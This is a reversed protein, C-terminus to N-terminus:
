CTASILGLPKSLLLSIPPCPPLPHLHLYSPSSTPSHFPSNLTSIILIYQTCTHFYLIFVLGRQHCVWFLFCKLSQLNKFLPNTQFWITFSSALFILQWNMLKTLPVTQFADLQLKLLEPCQCHVAIIQCHQVNALHPSIAWAGRRLKGQRSSMTSSEAGGEAGDDIWHGKVQAQRGGHGRAFTRKMTGEPDLELTVNKPCGLSDWWWLEQVTDWLHKRGPQTLNSAWM